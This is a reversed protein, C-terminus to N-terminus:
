LTDSFANRCDTRGVKRYIKGSNPQRLGSRRGGGSLIEWLNHRVDKLFGKEFANQFLQMILLIAPWCGAIKCYINM